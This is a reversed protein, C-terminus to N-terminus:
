QNFEVRSKGRRTVLGDMYLLGGKEFCGNCLVVGGKGLKGRLNSITALSSEM